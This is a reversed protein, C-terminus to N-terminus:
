RRLRLIITPRAKVQKEVKGDKMKFLGNGYTGM